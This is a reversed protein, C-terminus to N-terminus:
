RTGWAVYLSQNKYGLHFTNVARYSSPRRKTKSPNLASIPHLPLTQVLIVIMNKIQNNTQKQRKAQQCFLLQWTRKVVVAYRCM